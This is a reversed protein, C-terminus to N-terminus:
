RALLLKRARYLNSKISDESRDLHWPLDGDRGIVRNTSMAVILSVM